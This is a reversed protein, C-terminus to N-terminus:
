TLKDHSHTQSLFLLRYIFYFPSSVKGQSQWEIRTETPRKPEKTGCMSTTTKKRQKRRKKKKKIPKLKLIFFSFIIRMEDFFVM